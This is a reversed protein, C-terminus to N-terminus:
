YKPSSQEALTIAKELAEISQAGYFATASLLQETGSSSGILFVPTGKLNLSRADALHAAVVQGGPGAQCKSWEAVDVESSSAVTHLLREDIKGPRLFIQASFEWFKGQEGACQAAVAAPKAMPHSALPFHRFGFRIRGAEVFRSILEPYTDRAFRMCAPCEFDAYEIVTVAAEALGRFHTDKLSVPGIPIAQTSRPGEVVTPKAPAFSRWGVLVAIAVIALGSALDVGVRFRHWLASAM